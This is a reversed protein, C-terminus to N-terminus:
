RGLAAALARFDRFDRGLILARCGFAAAAAGDTDVRDGLHLMQAAAVGHDRAIRQLGLPSPKPAGLAEGAYFGAFRRELGLARVKAEAEYDSFAVQRVGAAELGALVAGVGRRPGVAALAPLLLEEEFGARLERDGPRERAWAPAPRGGTPDRQGDLRARMRRFAAVQRWARGGRGRLVMAALGGMLAVRAAGGAYLTGDVDWSVLRIGRFVAPLDAALVPRPHHLVEM